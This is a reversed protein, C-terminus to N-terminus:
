MLVALLVPTILDHRKRKEIAPSSIIHMHVLWKKTTSAVARADHMIAWANYEDVDIM